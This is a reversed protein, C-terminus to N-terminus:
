HEVGPLVAPAPRSRDDPTATCVQQLRLGSQLARDYALGPPLRKCTAVRQPSRVQRKVPILLAADPM